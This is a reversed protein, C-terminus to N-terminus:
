SFQLLCLRSPLQTAIQFRLVYGSYGATRDVIAEVDEPCLLNRQRQLLNLLLQRRGDASPLPIYLRKKFRRRAAEDLEQPRYNESLSMLLTAQM